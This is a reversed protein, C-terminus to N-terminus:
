IAGLSLNHEGIRLPTYMFGASDLGCMLVMHKNVNQGVKNVRQRRVAV